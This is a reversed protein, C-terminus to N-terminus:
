LLLNVWFYIDIFNKGYVNEESCILNTIRPCQLRKKCISFCLIKYSAYTFWWMEDVFKIKKTSFLRFKIWSFREFLCISLTLTVVSLLLTGGGFDPTNDEDRASYRSWVVGRTKPGCLSSIFWYYRFVM